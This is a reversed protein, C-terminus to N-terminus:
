EISAPLRVYDPAIRREHIAIAKQIPDAWTADFHWNWGSESPSGAGAIEARADVFYARSLGLYLVQVLVESGDPHQRTEWHLSFRQDFEHIRDFLYIINRCRSDLSRIASGAPQDLRSVYTGLDTKLPDPLAPFLKKLRGEVETMSKSISAAAEELLKLQSPTSDPKPNLLSLRDKLRKINGTLRKGEAQWTQTQATLLAKEKQWDSEIEQQLAQVEILNELTTQLALHPQASADQTVLFLGILGFGILSKLTWSMDPVGRM